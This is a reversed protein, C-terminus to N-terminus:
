PSTASDAKSAFPMVRAALARAASRSLDNRAAAVAKRALDYAATADGADQELVAGSYAAEFLDPRLHLAERYSQRAADFDGEVLYTTGIRAMAVASEPGSAAKRWLERARAPEGLHLRLTAIRDLLEWPIGQPPYGQELLNAATEARGEGLMKTVIQELEALNRWTSPPPPGLKQRYEALTAAEDAQTKAQSQNIPYLAILAEKKPAAAEYMLRQDYSLSLMWLTTFDGPSLEWGHRLAYTARVISLDFVPDFPLRFRPSNASPERFLEIQGALKWGDASDAAARVMRRADDLGLWAFEAHAPGTGMLYTRFARASATLEAISRSGAAPDPRFHRAGFDVAHRRVAETATDHVYVAAIPDFWVCRWRGDRFLTAGLAANNEHNVLIVPRGIRDLEAQWGPRDDRIAQDLAHYRAYFEPGAIELRPDTYVKREPGHYYEFLSAHGNHFSLFKDPMEPLGAFRAAAHPFFLTDEGLSITRKEGTMEYFWGSGVWLIVWGIAIAAALRPAMPSSTSSRTPISGAAALDIRRRRIAAAWEGFNWATVSGVVAAFQHTNRTAQLSLLSFAAFLLLRFPSLRWGAGATTSGAEVAEKREAKKSRGKGKGKGKRATDPKELGPRTIVIPRTGFLRIGIVWILPVLFSMAGLAMTLLHLQLPLNRLGAREIFLPVPTLEGITQSFIPNSMTGAIQVPFLAGHIGYPNVLCAAFTALSGIGVIRWWRQRGPGFSGSRLTADILAFVLIIPGLVFLGQSNVWLIQVIPLVVAALLPHRDWRTLVALFISLYLLTLTEPRVYIRGGLVLLAPLWAVLMVWVPWERQRATVLLLMAVCTVACKALNLGVVGGHQYVWSISVQFIWHLDIWPELSRTYTFLDIRPVRGMQRIWDGTKLHWYVDADKLPFVGLLFTLALFLAVLGADALWAVSTGSPPLEGRSATRPEAVGEKAKRTAPVATPISTTAPETPPSM